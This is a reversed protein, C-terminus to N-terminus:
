GSFAALTPVASPTDESATELRTPITLGMGGDFSDPGDTSPMEVNGVPLDEPGGASPDTEEGRQERALLATVQQSLALIQRQLNETESAGEHVDLENRVLGEPDDLIMYVRTNTELDWVEVKPRRADWTETNDIGEKYGFLSRTKKFTKTREPNRPMDVVSPDGFLTCALHWEVIADAGPPIVRKRNSEHFDFPRTGKNVLKVFRAM